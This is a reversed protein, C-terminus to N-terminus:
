SVWGANSAPPRQKALIYRFMNLFKERTPIKFKKGCSSHCRESIAIEGIECINASIELKEGANAGPLACRRTEGPVPHLALTCLPVMVGM